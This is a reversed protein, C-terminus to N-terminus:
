QEQMKQHIELVLKREYGGWEVVEDPTLGKSLMRKIRTRKEQEAGLKIGRKEGINLGERKGREEGLKIGRKEGREIGRKEGVKVGQQFRIDEQLNYTFPMTRQIEIVKEQLNRKKALIELQKLYKGFALEETCLNTLRQIIVAVIKEPDQGQFDCLITFVVMEPANSFLFDTYPLGGFHHVSYRPIPVRRDNEEPPYMRTPRESGLYFIHQELELEEGEQMRILLNYIAERYKMDADDTSQFEIHLILKKGDVEVLQLFDPNRSLTERLSINLPENSQIDKGLMHKALGFLLEAMNERIIDDYYQPM